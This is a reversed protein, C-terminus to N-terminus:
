GTSCTAQAASLLRRGRCGVGKQVAAMRRHARERRVEKRLLRSVRHFSVLSIAESCAWDGATDPWM